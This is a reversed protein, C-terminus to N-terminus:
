SKLGPWSGDVLQTPYEKEERAAASWACSMIADAHGFEVLLDVPIRLIEIKNGSVEKVNTFSRLPFDDRYKCVNIAALIEHIVMGEKHRRVFRGVDM